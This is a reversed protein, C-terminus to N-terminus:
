TEFDNKRKQRALELAEQHYQHLLKGIEEYGFRAQVDQSVKVTDIGHNGDLMRIMGDAIEQIHGVEVFLGEDDRVVAPIGGVRTTLVQCECAMAEM